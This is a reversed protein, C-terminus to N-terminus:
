PNGSGNVIEWQEMWPYTSNTSNTLDYGPNRMSSNVATIFTNTEGRRSTSATETQYSVKCPLNNYMCDKLASVVSPIDLNYRNENDISFKFITEENIIQMEGEWSGYKGSREISTIYGYKWGSEAQKCGAILIALLCVIILLKKM